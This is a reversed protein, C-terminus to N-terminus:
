LDELFCAQTNARRGRDDIVDLRFYGDGECLDFVAETVSGGRSTVSASRRGRTSMSIQKAASTSIHVRRDEVYLSYIEPGTSAYFRGALLGDVIDKYSLTLANVMVFTGFSDADWAAADRNHNDDGSSAFVRKGDRLLDDLVHVDYEYIGNTNSATNYIEVGWLGEYGGYDGYNELSWRPHNYCVFFGNENALRIMENIGEKGYVRSYDKRPKQINKRQEGWSFHDAVANYCINFVNGQEKAYFNLHCVKMNFNKMTSQESFEKIAYEAATLFLFDEGCLDAHSVLHEHDTLALFHYGRARYCEKLEAPTLVGDSVTSHAHMNGKFFPIKPDLLIKKM